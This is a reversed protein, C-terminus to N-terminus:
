LIINGDNETLLNEILKENELVKKKWLSYDWKRKYNNLKDDEVELFLWNFWSNTTSIIFGDSLKVFGIIPPNTNNEIIEKIIEADILSSILLLSAEKLKPIDKPQINAQWDAAVIKYSVEEGEESFTKKSIEQDSIYKISFGRKEIEKYISWIRNKYRNLFFDEAVENHKYPLSAYFSCLLYIHSASPDLIEPKRIMLEKSKAYIKWVIRRLDDSNEFNKFHLMEGEVKKLEPIRITTDETVKPFVPITQVSNQTPRIQVSENIKIPMAFSFFQFYDEFYIYMERLEYEKIKDLEWLIKGSYNFSILKEREEMLTYKPSYHNEDYEFRVKIFGFLPKVLPSFFVEIVPLENPKDLSSKISLFIKLKNKQKFIWFLLFSFVTTLLAFGIIIIAFWYATKVLLTFLSSFNESQNVQLREVFSIAVLFGLSFLFLYYTIPLFFIAPRLSKKIYSLAKGTM